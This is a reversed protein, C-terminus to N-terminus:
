NKRAVWYAAGDAGYREDHPVNPELEFIAGSQLHQTHGNMTLWMEGRMVIAYVGFVHTHTELVTNYASEREIV